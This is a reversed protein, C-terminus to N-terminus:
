LNFVNLLLEKIIICKLFSIMKLMKIMKTIILIKIINKKKINKSLKIIEEINKRDIVDIIIDVDFIYSDM